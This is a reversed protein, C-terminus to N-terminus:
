DQKRLGGIGKIATELETNMDDWAKRRDEESAYTSEAESKTADECIKEAAKQLDVFSGYSTIGKKSPTRAIAMCSEYVVPGVVGTLAGSAVSGTVCTAAIAGLLSYGYLVAKLTRNEPQERNRAWWTCVVEQM